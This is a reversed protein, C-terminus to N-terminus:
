VHRGLRVGLEKATQRADAAMNQLRSLVIGTKGDAMREYRSADRLAVDREDKLKKIESKNM